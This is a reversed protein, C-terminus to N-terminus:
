KDLELKAMLLVINNDIVEGNKKLKNIIRHIRGHCPACLIRVNENDYPGDPNIRHRSLKEKGPIDACLECFLKDNEIELRHTERHKAKLWKDRYKPFLFKDLDM